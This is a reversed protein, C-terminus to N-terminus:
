ETSIPRKLYSNVALLSSCLSLIITTILEIVTLRVININQSFTFLNTSEIDIQKSVVALLLLNFLIAFIAYMIAEIVFPLHIFSINAGVLRMINIEKRRTFITLQIANFIILTGGIIFILILWFIVQHSFDSVKKFNKAVSSIISKEQDSTGSNQKINSISLSLESGKLYNEIAEHYDPSKTKISISAPLPNGLDYKNFSEYISPYAIKIKELAEEKSTYTADVVGDILKVENIIKQAQVPTVSEKLYLTLDVKESLSQISSEAIFNIALIVNFIFIIIGIVFITAISLFRNRYLNSLSLELAKKLLLFPKPKIM